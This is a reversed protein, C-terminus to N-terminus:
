IKHEYKFDRFNKKKAADAAFNQFCSVILANSPANGPTKGSKQNSLERCFLHKLVCSNLWKQDVANNCRRAVRESQSTDKWVFRDSHKTVAMVICVSFYLLLKFSSM